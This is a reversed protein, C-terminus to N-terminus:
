INIYIYIDFHEIPHVSHCALTTPECFYYDVFVTMEIWRM